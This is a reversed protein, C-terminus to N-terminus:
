NDLEKQKIKIEIDTLKNNKRISIIKFVIFTIGGISTLTVLADNFNALNLWEMSKLYISLIFTSGGTLNALNSNIINDHMIDLKNNVM